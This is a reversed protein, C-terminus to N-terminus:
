GIGSLHPLTTERCVTLLLALFHPAREKHSTLSSRLGSVGPSFAARREASSATPLLLGAAARSSPGARLTLIAPSSRPHTLALTKESPPLVCSSPSSREPTYLATKDRSLQQLPSPLSLSTLGRKVPQQGDRSSTTEPAGSDGHAACVPFIPLKNSVLVPQPKASRTELRRHRRLM